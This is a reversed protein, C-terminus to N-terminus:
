GEENISRWQVQEGGDGKWLLNSYIDGARNKVDFFKDKKQQKARKVFRMRM